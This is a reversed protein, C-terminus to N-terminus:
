SRIAKRAPAPLHAKPLNLDQRQRTELAGADGVLLEGDEACIGAFARAPRSRDARLLLPMM